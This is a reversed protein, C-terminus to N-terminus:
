GDRAFGRDLSSFFQRLALHARQERGKAVGSQGSMVYMPSRRDDVEGPVFYLSPKPATLSRMMQPGVAAPFDPMASSRAARYPAAITLASERCIKLPKSM